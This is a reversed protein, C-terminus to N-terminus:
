QQAASAAGYALEMQAPSTSESITTPRWALWYSELRDVFSPPSESYIRAGLGDARSFLQKSRHDTLFVLTELDDASDSDATRALATSRLVHLDHIESLYGALKTLERDLAAMPKPWMPNLISVQYLLYKVQKRLEHLTEPTRQARALHLNLRGRKYVRHLGPRVASFSDNKIPWSHVRQRASSLSEILAASIQRKDVTARASRFQKRLSKLKHDVVKSNFHQILDELTVAAVTTDRAASLRRGADRYERNELKFTEVGIEGSILRLVARIKKFSVRTEHVARDKNRTKFDLCDLAHDIQDLTIRKIAEPLPEGDKIRYAM